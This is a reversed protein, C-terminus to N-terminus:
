AANSSMYVPVWMWSGGGDPVWPVIGREVLDDWDNCDLLVQALARLSFLLINKTSAGKWLLINKTSAGKEWYLEDMGDDNRSPEPLGYQECLM